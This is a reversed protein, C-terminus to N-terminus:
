NIKVNEGYVLSALKALVENSINDLAVNVTINQPTNLKKEINDLKQLLAMKFYDDMSIGNPLGNTEDTLSITKHTNIDREESNHRSPYYEGNLNIDAYTVNGYVGNIEYKISKTYEM